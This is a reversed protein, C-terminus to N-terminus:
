TLIMILKGIEFEKPVTSKPVMQLVNRTEMMSFEAQIAKEYEQRDPASDLDDYTAPQKNRKGELIKNRLNEKQRETRKRLKYENSTGTTIIVNVEDGFRIPKKVIRGYSTKYPGTNAKDSLNSQENDNDAPVQKDSLNSQPVEQASINTSNADKDQTEGSNETFGEEGETDDDSSVSTEYLFSDHKTFKLTDNELYTPTPRRRMYEAFSIAENFHVDQIQLFSNRKSQPNYLIATDHSGNPDVGLFICPIGIPAFKNVRKELAPIHLCLCGFVRFCSRQIPKQYLLMWPIGNLSRIPLRNKIFAAYYVAYRWFSSDLNMAHLAVRAMNRLSQINREVLGNFLDHRQPPCFRYKIGLKDLNQTFTTAMFGSQRDLVLSQVKAPFRTKLVLFASWLQDASTGRVFELSIYRTAQDVGVFFYGNSAKASVMLDCSWVGGPVNSREKADKDLIPQMIRPKCRVCDVCVPLQANQALVNLSKLVGAHSHMLRAHWLEPTQSPSTLKNCIDAPPPLMQAVSVDNFIIMGVKKGDPQLIHATDLNHDTRFGAKCLLSNSAINHTARPTFYAPFIFQRGLNAFRLAVLGSGACVTDTDLMKLSTQRSLDLHVFYRRDNIAFCSSGTDIIIPVSSGTPKLVNGTLTNTYKLRAKM